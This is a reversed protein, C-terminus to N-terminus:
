CQYMAAVITALQVPFFMIKDVPFSSNTNGDSGQDPSRKLVTRKREWALSTGTWTKDM